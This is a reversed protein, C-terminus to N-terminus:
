KKKIVVRPKAGNSPGIVGRKELMDMLGASRSYGIGFKRQIYSTSVKGAKIVVAKVEEYLSDESSGIEDDLMFISIAIPEVAEADDKYKNQLSNVLEKIEKETIGDVQGRIVYKMGIRFLIDGSGRLLCASDTGIILKSDIASASQLGVRSTFADQIAKTYVKTSPRSTSLIIHVGVSHGIGAIKLVVEETEKPYTQIVDSFEDIIVLIQPMSESGKYEAIDKCGAEKFVDFRRSIEKTAWKMALVSKKPDVIVETLLHPIKNYLTLEVRKPDILILRLDEPSNNSILTTIIKHLLTSKGSGTSGAMLLHKAESINLNLDHNYEDKGINITLNTKM